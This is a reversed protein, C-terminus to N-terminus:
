INTPENKTHSPLLFLIMIGIINLFLALVFGVWIPYGKAKAIDMGWSIIAVVFTICLAFIFGDGLASLINAGNSISINVGIFLGLTFALAIRKTLTM